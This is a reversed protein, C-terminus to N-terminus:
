NCTRALVEFDKEEHGSSVIELYRRVLVDPFVERYDSPNAELKVLRIESEAESREPIRQAFELLKRDYGIHPASVQAFHVLDGKLDFPVRAPNIKELCSILYRYNKQTFKPGQYSWRWVLYSIGFFEPYAILERFFTFDGLDARFGLWYAFVANTALLGAAVLHQRITYARVHM